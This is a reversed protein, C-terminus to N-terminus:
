IAKFTFGEKKRAAYWSERDPITERILVRPGSYTMQKAETIHRPLSSAIFYSGASEYAYVVGFTSPM